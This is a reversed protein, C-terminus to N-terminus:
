ISLSMECGSFLYPRLSKTKKGRGGLFQYQVCPETYALCSNELQAM